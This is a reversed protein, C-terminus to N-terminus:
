KVGEALPYRPAIDTPISTMKDLAAKMEPRMVGYTDLMAKAKDYSGEAQITMIESTLKTVAQKIKDFNVSFTGSAADHVFAGEDILYNFQLAIGKGHAENLGFRVSRFASALFTVYMQKEFSKDVVGKDILYQLAWLGSIDAKAEATVSRFHSRSRSNKGQTITTEKIM